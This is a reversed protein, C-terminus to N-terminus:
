AAAKADSRAVEVARAMDAIFYPHMFTGPDTGNAMTVFFPYTVDYFTEVPTHLGQPLAMRVSVAVCPEDDWEEWDAHMVDQMSEPLRKAIAAVLATAAEEILYGTEDTLGEFYPAWHEVHWALPEIWILDTTGDENIEARVGPIAEPTVDYYADGVRDAVTALPRALTTVSM